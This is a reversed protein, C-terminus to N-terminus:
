RRRGQSNDSPVPIDPVTLGLQTFFSSWSSTSRPLLGPSIVMSRLLDDSIPRLHQIIAPLPFCNGAHSSLEWDKESFLPPHEGIFESSFGLARLREAGSLPRM